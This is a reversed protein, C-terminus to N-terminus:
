SFLLLIYVHIGSVVSVMPHGKKQRGRDLTSEIINVSFVEQYIKIIRNLIEILCIFFKLRFFVFKEAASHEEKLDNSLFM